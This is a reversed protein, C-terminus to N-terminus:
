RCEQLKQTLLQTTAIKEINLLHSTLNLFYTELVTQQFTHLKELFHSISMFRLANSLQPRLADTSLLKSRCCWLFKSGINYSHQLINRFVVNRAVFDIDRRSQM